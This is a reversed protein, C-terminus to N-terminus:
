RHDIYYHSQSKLLSIPTHMKFYLWLVICKILLSAHTDLLASKYTYKSLTDSISIICFVFVLIAYDTVIIFHFYLFLMVCSVFSVMIVCSFVM